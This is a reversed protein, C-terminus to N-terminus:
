RSERIDDKDGKAVVTLDKAMLKVDLGMDSEIMTIWALTKDICGDSFNWFITTM